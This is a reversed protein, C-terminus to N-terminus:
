SVATPTLIGAARDFLRFFNDTTHRALEAETVGKTEALLRATAAVYAPENRKGRFPVPALYPADTEVLIRDLPVTAAIQRLEDAKKFTVIGSFSLSFGLALAAEALAPSGSFCHLVGRLRGRGHDRLLTITDEEADRTHVIVPLDAELAAAIQIRFSEAQVTRPSKDYFYDLGCEGIAVVKPQAALAVLGQRTLVAAEEAAQHPHVGVSCVVDPFRAAVALVQPFRSVYTCITMMGGVGAARARAVTDDLDAAFDPFDLHCHSDVLM